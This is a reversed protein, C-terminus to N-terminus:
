SANCQWDDSTTTTHARNSITFIMARRLLATYFISFWLRFLLSCMQKKKKLWVVLNFIDNNFKNQTQKKAFCKQQSQISFLFNIKKKQQQLLTVAKQHRLQHPSAIYDRSHKIFKPHQSHDITKVSSYAWRSTSIGKKCALLFIFSKISVKVVVVVFSSRTPILTFDPCLHINFPISSNYSSLTARHKKYYMWHFSFSGFLLYLCSAPICSIHEDYPTFM